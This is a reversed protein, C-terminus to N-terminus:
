WLVLPVQLILWSINAVYSPKKYQSNPPAISCWKLVVAWEINSILIERFVLHSLLTPKKCIRDCKMVEHFHM